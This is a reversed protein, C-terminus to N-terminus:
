ARRTTAPKPPNTCKNIGGKIQKWQIQELIATEQVESTSMVTLDFMTGEFTSCLAGLSLQMDRKVDRLDRGEGYVLLLDIDVPSETRLSSGFLYVEDFIRFITDKKEVLVQETSTM